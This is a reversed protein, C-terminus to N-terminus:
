LKMSSLYRLTAPIQEWPKTSEDEIYYIEM